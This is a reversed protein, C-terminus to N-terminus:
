LAHNLWDTAQKVDTFVKTNVGRNSAVLEGFREKDVIPEQGIVAIRDLMLRGHKKQYNALNEAFYFRDMLPINGTINNVDILIKRKKHILAYDVSSEFLHNAKALSYNGNAVISVFDTDVIREINFQSDTNTM